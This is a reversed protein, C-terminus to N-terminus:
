RSQAGREKAANAARSAALSAPWSGRSGVAEDATVALGLKTRRWLVDEATQAWERTMLYRLEAERSRRASRYRRSRRPARAGGLIAKARTGYAAALRGAHARRLSRTNPRSRRRRASCARGGPFRRGALPAEGTWGARQRAVRRCIRRLGRWRRRPSGGTPRSRAASSRCCRPATRRRMSNWCMIARRRRPIASATTMSRACAPFAGCWTPRRSRGRSILVFGRQM